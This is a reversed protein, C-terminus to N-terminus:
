QQWGTLVGGELYAFRYGSSYHEWVWQESASYTTVTKNIDSPLGWSAIIACESMGLKLTGAKIASFDTRKILGRSVLASRFAKWVGPKHPKGLGWKQHEGYKLVNIAYACLEADSKTAVDNLSWSFSANELAACSTLIVALGAIYLSKILKM